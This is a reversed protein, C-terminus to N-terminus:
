TYLRESNSVASSIKLAKAQALCDLDPQTKGLSEFDPFM